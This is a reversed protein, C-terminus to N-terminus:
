GEVKLVVWGFLVLGAQVRASFRWQGIWVDRRLGFSATWIRNKLRGIEIRQTASHPAAPDRLNLELFRQPVSLVFSRRALGLGLERNGRGLRSTWYRTRGVHWVPRHPQNGPESGGEAAPHDM